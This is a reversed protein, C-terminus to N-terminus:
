RASLFPNDNVYEGMGFELWLELLLQANDIKEQHSDKRLLM